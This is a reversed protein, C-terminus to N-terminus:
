LLMKLNHAHLNLEWSWFRSSFQASNVKAFVESVTILSQTSFQGIASRCIKRIVMHKSQGISTLKWKRLHWTQFSFFLYSVLWVEYVVHRLKVGREGAREFFPRCVPTFSGFVSVLFSVSTTLPFGLLLDKLGYLHHYFCHPAFRQPQLFIFGYQVRIVCKLGKLLKQNHVVINFM